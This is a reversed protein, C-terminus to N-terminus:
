GAEPAVHNEPQTHLLHGTPTIWMIEGTGQPDQIPKWGAVTKLTHHGPCLSALNNHDTPGIDAVWELGHDIEARVASRNCGPFRCIGDRFWLWFRLAAPIRYRKRGISLAAGTDPDTLIRIMGKAQAALERATQPDIPGYGELIGPEEPLDTTEEDPGRGDVSSNSNDNANGAAGPGKRLMTMVPVTVLLRPSITRYRDAPGNGRGATSTARTTGTGDTCLGDVNLLLDSAIDAKLQALTRLEGEVQSAKALATVYNDIAIVQAIPLEMILRGMGDRMGEIFIARKEAAAVQREVMNELNLREAMARVSREFQPPTQQAGRPLARQELMTVSEPDLLGVQDVLIQAHRVTIVGDSLYDLTMPLDNTLCQAMWVLRRAAMESVRMSAALQAVLSRVALDEGSHHADGSMSAAMELAWQRAQEIGRLQRAQEMAIKVASVAVDDVRAALGGLMVAFPSLAPADGAGAFGLTSGTLGM